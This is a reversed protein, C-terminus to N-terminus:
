EPPSNVTTEEEIKIDSIQESGPNEIPSESQIESNEELKPEKNIENYKNVIKARLSQYYKTKKIRKQSSPFLAGSIFVLGVVFFPFLPSELIDDFIPFDMSITENRTLYNTSGVMIKGQFLYKGSTWTKDFSLNGGFEGKPFNALFQSKEDILKNDFYLQFVFMVNSLIIYQNSIQYSFNLPDDNQHPLEILLKKFGILQFVLNVDTNNEILVIKQETLGTDIETAIFQYWGSRVISSYYSERLERYIAWGQGQQGNGGYFIQIDSEREVDGQDTTRVTMRNGDIITFISFIATAGTGTTLLMNGQINEFGEFFFHISYNFSLFVNFEIKPVFRFTENPALEYEDVNWSFTFNNEWNELGLIEAKPFVTVFRDDNVIDFYFNESYFEHGEQLDIIINSLPPYSIGIGQSEKIEFINGMM